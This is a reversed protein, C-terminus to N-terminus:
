DHKFYIFEKLNSTQLSLNNIKSFVNWLGWVNPLSLKSFIANEGIRVIIDDKCQGPVGAATVLVSGIAAM